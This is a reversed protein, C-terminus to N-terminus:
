WCARAITCVDGGDMADNDAKGVEVSRYFLNKVSVANMDDFGDISIQEIRGVDDDQRM